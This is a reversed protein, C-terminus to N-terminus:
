GNICSYGEQEAEKWYDEAWPYPVVSEDWRYYLHPHRCAVPERASVGPATFEEIWYRQCHDKWGPADLSYHPHSGGAAVSWKDTGVSIRTMGDAGNAEPEWMPKTGPM